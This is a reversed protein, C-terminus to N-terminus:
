QKQLATWELRGSARLQGGVAALPEVGGMLGVAARIHDSVVGFVTEGILLIVYVERKSELM